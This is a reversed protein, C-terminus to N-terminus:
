IKMWREMQVCCCFSFRRMGVRVDVFSFGTPCFNVVVFNLLAPNPIFM